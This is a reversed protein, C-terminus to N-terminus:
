QTGALRGGVQISGANATALAPTNASAPAMPKLRIARSAVGTVGCRMFRSLERATRASRRSGPM